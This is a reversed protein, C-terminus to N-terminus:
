DQSGSSRNLNLVTAEDVDVMRYKLSTSTCTNLMSICENMACIIYHEM